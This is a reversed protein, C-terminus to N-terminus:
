VKRAWPTVSHNTSLGKTRLGLGCNNISWLAHVGEDGNSGGSSLNVAVHEGPDPRGPGRPSKRGPVLSSHTEHGAQTLTHGVPICQSKRSETDKDAFAFPLLPHQRRQTKMVQSEAIEAAETKSRNGLQFTHSPPSADASYIVMAAYILVAMLNMIPKRLQRGQVKAIAIEKRVDNRSLKPIMVTDAATLVECCFDQFENQLQISPIPSAKGQVVAYSHISGYNPVPVDLEVAQVIAHACVKKLVAAQTYAVVSVRSGYFPFNAHSHRGDMLVWKDHTQAVTSGGQAQMWLFGGSCPGLSITASPGINGHDTHPKSMLNVNLQITTYRFEPMATSLDDIIIKLLPLLNPPVRCYPGAGYNQSIGVCCGRSVEM